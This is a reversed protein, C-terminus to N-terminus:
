STITISEPAPAAACEGMADSRRAVTYQQEFAAIVQRALAVVPVGRSHEDLAGLVHEFV